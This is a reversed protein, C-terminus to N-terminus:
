SKRALEYIERPLASLTTTKAYHRRRKMTDNELGLRENLNMVRQEATALRSRLEQESTSAQTRVLQAQREGWLWAALAFCFALILVVLASTVFTM